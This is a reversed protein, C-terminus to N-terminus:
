RKAKQQRLRYIVALVEAVAMYLGEPVTKGVDVTGYITRTLEPRRMVPIGYARAIERIIQAKHEVGKALLVPAAMTAPDYKLAVAYHTPNVLVVDAKPVADRLMEQLMQARIRRIRSRVEPSGETDKHEQKAEQVSMRMDQMFKWHQYLADILAIAILAVAIRTCLGLILRGVQALFEPTSAWRLVALSEMRDRLYLWVILSVAGMKLVSIVLTVLSRLTILNRVNEVPNIAEPRFRLSEASFAMGGLLLTGAIGAVMLLGMFPASLVMTEMLTENFFQIFAQQSAFVSTKGMLGDTIAMSFRNLLFSTLFALAAILTLLSAISSLEQSRPVRGKDRAQQLKRPTAQLSREAAEDPV